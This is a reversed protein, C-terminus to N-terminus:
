RLVPLSRLFNGLTRVGPDEIGDIILRMDEIVGYDKRLFAFYFWRTLLLRLRWFAGIKMTGCANFARVQDGEQIFGFIASSRIRGLDSEVLMITGYCSQRVRIQNNSLRKMLWSSLGGGPLVRTTYSFHIAGDVSKSFVPPVVLERQHVTAMHLIDFGNAMMAHWNSRLVVPRGASWAYENQPCPLKPPVGHGAFLFVLGFHEAVPWARAKRGSCAKLEKIMGNRDLEFHHLACRLKDGVVKGSRLHAGMHPCHADLAVLEKAETRFIVFAKGAISGDFVKGRAIDSSRAVVYWTDPWDPLPAVGAVGATTAPSILVASM